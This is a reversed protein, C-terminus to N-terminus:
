PFDFREEYNILKQKSKGHKNGRTRTAKVGHKLAHRMKAILHKRVYVDGLSKRAGM